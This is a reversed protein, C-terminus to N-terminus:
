AAVGELNVYERRCVDWGIALIGWSAGRGGEGRAEYGRLLARRVIWRMCMISGGLGVVRCTLRLEMDGKQFLRQTEPLLFHEVPEVEWEVERLM